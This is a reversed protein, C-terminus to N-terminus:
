VAATRRSNQTVAVAALVTVSALMTPLTVREGLLLAAWAISLVPQALQIQATRAIGNLALAKYWPFFGFLASVLALYFFGCWAERTAHPVGELVLRAVTALALLPSACALAWCIVQWGGLRRALAGGEAYGIGGLLVAAVVLSASGGCGSGGCGSGGGEPGGAGLTAAFGLVAALGAGAGLCFGPTPLSRTRLAAAVTTAAPLLGAIVAGDVVPLRRLALTTLLPFGVVVGLVVLGLPVADRRQPMIPRRVALILLAPCSAVASRGFALTLPDFGGAEALATAPLTLSFAGVALAALAFGTITPADIDNDHKSM